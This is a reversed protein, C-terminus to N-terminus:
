NTAFLLSMAESKIDGNKNFNRRAIKKEQAVCIVNMVMEKV